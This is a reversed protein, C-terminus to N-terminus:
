AMICGPWRFFFWSFSSYRVASPEALSSLFRVSLCALTTLGFAFGPRAPLTEAVAALTIPMTMNLFFVGPIAAIPVIHGYVLFPLAALLSGVATRMWGWRDALIGGLAKGLVTAATLSLLAVPQTEWSCCGFGLSRGSSSRCCSWRWYLNWERSECDHNRGSLPSVGRVGEVPHMGDSACIIM